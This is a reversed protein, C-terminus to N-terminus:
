EHCHSVKQAVMYAILPFLKRTRNGDTQTDLIHVISKTLTYTLKYVYAHMMTVGSGPNLRLM